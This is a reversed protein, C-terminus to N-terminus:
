GLAALGDFTISICVNRRKSGKRGAADEKQYITGRSVAVLGSAELKALTPSAM